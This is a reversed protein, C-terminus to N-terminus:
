RSNKATATTEYTPYTGDENAEITNNNLVSVSIDSNVQTNLSSVGYNSTITKTEGPQITIDEWYM